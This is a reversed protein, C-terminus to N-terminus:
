TSPPQPPKYKPPPLMRGLVFISALSIATAGGIIGAVRDHGTLALWVCSGLTLITLIFAFIQGTRREIFMGSLRMKEMSQLHAFDHEAMAIIRDAAGPVIQNYHHLIEPSPLPGQVTTTQQSISLSTQVAPPNPPRSPNNRSKSV